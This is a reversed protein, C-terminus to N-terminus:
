ILRKLEEKLGLIVVKEEESYSWINIGVMLGEWCFVYIGEFIIRGEWVGFGFLLEKM